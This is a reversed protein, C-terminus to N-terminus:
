RWLADTVIAQEDRLAALRSKYRLSLHTCAL